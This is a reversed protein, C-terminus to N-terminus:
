WVSRSISRLVRITTPGLYSFALGIWALKSSPMVDITRRFESRGLDEVGDLLKAWGIRCDFSAERKRDDGFARVSLEPDRLMAERIAFVTNRAIGVEGRSLGQAHTRYEVLPDSLYRFRAVRSIRLWLDLDETGRLSSLERFGGLSEVLESRVMVTSCGIFNRRCLESAVEDPEAPVRGSPLTGRPRRRGDIVVRMSCFVLGVEPASELVELQAELKRPLWFDDADLFAIYAGRSRRLAVNRGVAPLGSHSAKIIVMRPDEFSELISVTDDSSGDDVIIWEWDARTQSLVGEVTRRIFRGANFAPTVISILPHSEMLTEFRCGGYAM